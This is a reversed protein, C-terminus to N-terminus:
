LQGATELDVAFDDADYHVPVKRKGLEKLFQPQSLSAIRAAQGLTARRDVFMGIALDLLALDPTLTTGKLLKDPVAINM